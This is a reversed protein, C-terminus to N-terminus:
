AKRRPLPFIEMQFKFAVVSSESIFEFL